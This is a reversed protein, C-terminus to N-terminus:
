KGSCQNLIISGVIRKISTVIMHILEWDVLPPRRARINDHIGPM